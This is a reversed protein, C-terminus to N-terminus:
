DLQFSLGIKRQFNEFSDILNWFDYFIERYFLIKFAFDDYIMM